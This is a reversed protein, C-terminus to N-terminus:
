CLWLTLLTLVALLELCLSVDAAPLGRASQVTVEVLGAFKRRLFERAPPALTCASDVPPIPPTWRCGSAGHASLM